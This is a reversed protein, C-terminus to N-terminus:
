HHKKLFFLILISILVVPILLLYYNFSKKTKQSEKIQEKELIDEKTLICYKEYIDKEGKNKAVIVEPLCVKYNTEKGEDKSMLEYAENRTVVAGSKSNKNHFTVVYLYKGSYMVTNAREIYYDLSENLTDIIYDNFTFYDKLLNYDEISIARGDKLTVKDQQVTLTDVSTTSLIIMLLIFITKKM